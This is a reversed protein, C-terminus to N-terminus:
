LSDNGSRDYIRSIDNILARNNDNEYRGIIMGKPDILIKTPLISVGYLVMIDNQYRDSLGHQWLEVKDRKIAEKWRDQSDADDAIAIFAINAKNRKLVQYLSDLEPNEKRCPKCWSAWFILLVYEGKYDALRIKKQVPNTAEFDSAITYMAGSKWNNMKLQLNKGYRSNQVEAGLQEYFTYFLAPSLRNMTYTLEHATVISHPHNRFFITDITFLRQSLPATQEKLSDMKDGILDLLTSSDKLKSLVIYRYNLEEYQRNLPALLSAAEGRLRKLEKHENETDSGTLDPLGFVNNTFRLTLLKPEIFFSTTNTDSANWRKANRKSLFALVPQSIHGKFHFGGNTVLSSDMIIKESASFYSLYLYKGDMQEVTGNLLFVGKSAIQANM